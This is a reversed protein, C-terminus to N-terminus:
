SNSQYKEKQSISLLMTTQAKPKQLIPWLTKQALANIIAAIGALVITGEL